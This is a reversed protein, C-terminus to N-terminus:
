AGWPWWRSKPAKEPINSFRMSLGLITWLSYFSEGSLPGVSLVHKGSPVEYAHLGLKAVGTLGTRKVIALEPMQLTAGFPTPVSLSPIGLLTEVRDASLAGSRIAAVVDARKKDEVLLGGDRNVRQAVAAVAYAKDYGDFTTADLFVKRGALESVDMQLVALDAATSLLLQETATRAPDSLRPTMCGSVAILALLVVRAGHRTM